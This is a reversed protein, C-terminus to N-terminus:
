EPMYLRQLQKKFYYKDKEKYLILVDGYKPHIVRGQMSLSNDALLRASINFLANHYNELRVNVSFNGPNQQNKDVIIGKLALQGSLQVSIRQNIEGSLIKQLESMNCAFQDPLSAFLLPKAVPPQYVPLPSEQAYLQGHLMLVVCMWLIHM